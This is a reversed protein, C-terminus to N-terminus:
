GVAGTAEVAGSGSGSGSGAGAGTGPRTGRSRATWRGDRCEVEVDVGFAGSVASTTLVRAIPGAGTM